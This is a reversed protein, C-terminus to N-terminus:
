EKKKNSRRLITIIVFISLLTVFSLTTNDFMLFSKKTLPLPGTAAVFFELVNNKEQGEPVVNYPDINITWKYMGVGPSTWNFSFKIKERPALIPITVTWNTGDSVSITATTEHATPQNGNNRIVIDYTRSENWPQVITMPLNEIGLDAMNFRNISYHDMLSLDARYARLDMQNDFLDVFVFHYAKERYISGNIPKSPNYLPAGAGGSVLYTTDNLLLREYFHDHGSAVLDVKHKEFIPVFTTILDFTDNEYFRSSSSFPPRHMLTLKWPKNEYQSLDRELWLVQEDFTGGYRAVCTHLANIHLIPFDLSWYEEKGPLSFMKYYNSSNEEHNGLIPMLPAKIIAPYMDKFWRHWYTAVNGNDVADGTFVSFDYNVKGVADAVMRRESREHRSDGWIIFQMHSGSSATKFTYITSWDKGDGVRYLYVTNPKLNTLEVHHWIGSEGSVENDTVSEEGYQVISATENGTKWSITMTTTPDHQWSLHIYMPPNSVEGDASALTFTPLVTASMILTLVLIFYNRLKNKM